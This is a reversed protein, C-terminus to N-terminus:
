KVTGEELAGARRLAEEIEGLTGGGEDTPKRILAHIRGVLRPDVMADIDESTCILVPIERTAPFQQLAEFVDYGSMVPMLLDLIIADPLQSKAVKLGEAGNSAELLEIPYKAVAQRVLYRWADDDDILLLRRRKM